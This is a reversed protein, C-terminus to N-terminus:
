QSAGSPMIAMGKCKPCPWGDRRNWGEMLGVGDCSDCYEVAWNFLGQRGILPIAEPFKRVGKTLWAFRGAEYNGFSCESPPIDCALGDTPEVAFLDVIAVVKGFEFCEMEDYGVRSLASKFPETHCLQGFGPIIKKAAHIALPGRYKTSWHRTEIQKSGIAMLTAWPQYLSLAKM